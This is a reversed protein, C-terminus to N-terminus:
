HLEDSSVFGVFLLWKTRRWTGVLFLLKVESKCSYVIREDDALLWSCHKTVIFRPGGSMPGSFCHLHHTHIPVLFRMQCENQPPPNLFWLINKEFLKETSLMHWRGVFFNQFTKLFKWKVTFNNLHDECYFFGKSCIGYKRNHYRKEGGLRKLRCDSLVPCFQTIYM